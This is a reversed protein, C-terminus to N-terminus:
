GFTKRPAVLPKRLPVGCDKDIWKLDAKWRPAANKHKVQGSLLRELAKSIAMVLKDDLGVLILM